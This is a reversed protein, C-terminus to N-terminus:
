SSSKLIENAKAVMAKFGDDPSTKGLLVAEYNPQIADTQIKSQKKQLSEDLVLQPVNARDFYNTFFQMNPSTTDMLKNDGAYKVSSARAPAEYLDAAWLADAKTDSLTTIFAVAASYFADGKDQKGKYWVHAPVSGPTAEKTNDLHPFPLLIPNIPDGKAKGAKIDGALKQESSIIYPGSRCITAAQWTDFYQQMKTTQFAPNDPPSIKLSSYYSVIRKLNDLSLPNDYLFKGNGDLVYDIGSNQNWLEWMEPLGGNNWTGNFVLGWQPQGTKGSPLTLTKAATAYDDYTWGKAQIDQWKVSGAELLAQNGSINWLQKWIPFGYLKGKYTYAALTTDGFDKRDDATLYEDVPQVYGTNIWTPSFYSFMTDPPTGAALQVTVKQSGDTWTLFEYKVDVNPNKVQYDKILTKLNDEYHNGQPWTWFGMTMKQTNTTAAQAAPGTTPTPATAASSQGQAPATTPAPTSPSSCAAVLPAIAVGFGAAAFLRTVARRTLRQELAM